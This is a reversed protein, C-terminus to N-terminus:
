LGVRVGAAATATWNKNTGDSALQIGADGIISWRSAIPVAVVGGGNAHVYLHAEREGFFGRDGSPHSWPDKWTIIGAGMSMYPRVASWDALMWRAGASALYAQSRATSCSHASLELTCTQSRISTLGAQFLWGLRKTSAIRVAAFPAGDSMGIRGGIVDAAWEYGDGNRSQLGQAEANTGAALLLAIIVTRCM